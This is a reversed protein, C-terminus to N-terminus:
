PHPQIHSCSGAKRELTFDEGWGRRPRGRERRGAYIKYADFWSLISYWWRVKLQLGIRRFGKQEQFISQDNITVELSKFGEDDFRSNPVDPFLVTESFKEDGRVFDTNFPSTASSDLDTLELDAPVRGDLAIPCSITGSGQRRGSRAVAVSTLLSILITSSLM